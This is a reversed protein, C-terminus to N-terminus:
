LRQAVYRGRFTAAPGAADSVQVNLGLRGRGRRGLAALLRGVAAADPSRCTAQFDAAVPREHSISSDQIVVRALVDNSRLLAWMFSWGALTAIANLSGAFASGAHNHNAALPAALTVHDRDLSVVRIGLHQTVPLETRLTSQLDEIVTM